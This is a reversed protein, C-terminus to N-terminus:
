EITYFPLVSEQSEFVNTKTVRLISNASGTTIYVIEVNPFQKEILEKIGNLDKENAKLVLARPKIKYATEAVLGMDQSSTTEETKRLTSKLM